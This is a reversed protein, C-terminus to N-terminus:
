LLLMVELTKLLEVSKSVVSFVFSFYSYIQILACAEDDTKAVVDVGIFVDVGISVLQASRGWYLSM